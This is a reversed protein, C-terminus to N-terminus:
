PFGIIGTYSSSREILLGLKHRRSYAAAIDRPTRCIAKDARSKMEREFYSLVDFITVDKM